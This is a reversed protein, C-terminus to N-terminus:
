TARYSETSAAHEIDDRFQDMLEVITDHLDIYDASEMASWEGHAVTNRNHVLRSNLLKEKTRYKSQDIGVLSLLDMFVKSNLNSRTDIPEVSRLTFRREDDLVKDILDRALDVDRQKAIRRVQRLLDSVLFNRELDRYKLRRNAVYELYRGAAARIFGEWHAYLLCVGSRIMMVQVHGVTGYLQRNIAALERKRWSLESDLYDTLEEPNRDPM